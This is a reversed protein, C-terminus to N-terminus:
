EKLKAIIVIQNDDMTTSKSIETLQQTPNEIKDYYEQFEEVSIYTVLENNSSIYHLWVVPGNDIDNKFGLKGKIPQKMLILEGTFKNFIGYVDDVILTTGRSTIIEYPEPAHNGFYFNIFLHNHSEFIKKVTIFKRGYEIFNNFGEKREIYSLTTRYKGLEFIFADKMETNQSVTFVTDNIIKYMRVEDKYRYMIGFEDYLFGSSTKDLKVSSPYEKIYKVDSQYSELLIAKPYYGTMSIVNMVFTDKKLPIIRKLGHSFYEDSIENLWLNNKELLNGNTDYIM